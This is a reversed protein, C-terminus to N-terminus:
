RLAEMGGTPFGAQPYPGTYRPLWIRPDDGPHLPGWGGDDSANGVTERGIDALTRRADRLTDKDPRGATKRGKPQEVELTTLEELGEVAVAHAAEYEDRVAALEVLEGRVKEARREHTTQTLAELREARESM